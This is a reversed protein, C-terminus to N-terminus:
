DYLHEQEIMCKGKRQTSALTGCQALDSSAFVEAVIDECRRQM